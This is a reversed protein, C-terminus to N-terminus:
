SVFASKPLIDANVLANNITDLCDLCRTEISYGMMDYTVKGNTRENFRRTDEEKSFDRGCKRCIM